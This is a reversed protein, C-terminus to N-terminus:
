TRKFSVRRSMNLSSVGLNAIINEQEYSHVFPVPCCYCCSLRKRFSWESLKTLVEKIQLFKRWCRKHGLRCLVNWEVHDVCKKVQNHVMWHISKILTVTLLQNVGRPSVVFCKCASVTVIFHASSGNVHDQFSESRGAFDVYIM